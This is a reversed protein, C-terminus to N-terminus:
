KNKLIEEFTIVKSKLEIPATLPDEKWQTVDIFAIRESVGTNSFHKMASQISKKISDNETIFLVVSMANADIYQRITNLYRSSDKRTREYEIAFVRLKEKFHVKLIADPFKQVGNQISLLYERANESKLEKETFWEEIVGSRKLHICGRAVTEDHEIYQPLVPSVPSLKILNLYPTVSDHLVFNDKLSICSHKKLIKRKLLKSLQDQKWRIKGKSFYQYWTERSMVGVKSIYSIMDLVNQPIKQNSNYRLSTM